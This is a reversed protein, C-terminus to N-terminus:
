FHFTLLAGGASLLEYVTVGAAYQDSPRWDAEQQGTWREPALCPPSGM